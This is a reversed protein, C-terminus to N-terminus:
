RDRYYCDDANRVAVKLAVDRQSEFVLMCPFARHDDGILLRLM